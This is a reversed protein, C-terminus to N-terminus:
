GYQKQRHNDNAAGTRDHARQHSSGKHHQQRFRHLPDTGAEPATGDVLRQREIGVDGKQALDRDPQNDDRKQHELRIAERMAPALDLGVPFEVRKRMSTPVPSAVIADLSWVSSVFYSWSIGKSRRGARAAAQSRQL